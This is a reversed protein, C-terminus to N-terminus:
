RGSKRDEDDMRGFEPIGEDGGAQSSESEGSPPIGLSGRVQTERRIETDHEMAEDLNEDAQQNRDDEVDVERPL